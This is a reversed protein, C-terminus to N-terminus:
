RFRALDIPRGKADGNEAGPRDAFWAVLADEIEDASAGPRRRRLTARMIEEALESLELAVELREAADSM